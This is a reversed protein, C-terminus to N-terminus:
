LCRKEFSSLLKEDKEARRFFPELYRLIDEIQDPEAIPIQRLEAAIAARQATVDSLADALHEREICYGRYRRTTVREIRLSPDPKAYPANVTGALDFDFPITYLRGDRSVLDINHCCRDDTDATVLSWDTNGILYQFIYMTAAQRRALESLRIATLNAREAGMREALLRRSELFFAYRVSAPADAKGDTDHYRVRLARTKYAYPSLVGFVRYAAYEDALNRDGRANDFCHTVLKLSLLGEFPTGATDDGFYVRLPAFRCVRLRSNGRVRVDVELDKGGVRLIMPRRERAEADALVSTLPGTLEIDLLATDQFLAPGPSEPEQAEAATSTAALLLIAALTTAPQRIRPRM